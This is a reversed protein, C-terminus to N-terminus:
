RFGAKVAPKVAKSGARRAKHPAPRPSGARAQARKRARAALALGIAAGAPGFFLTLAVTRGHKAVLSRLREKPTPRAGLGSVVYPM